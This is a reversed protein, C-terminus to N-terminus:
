GLRWAVQYFDMISQQLVSEEIPDFESHHLRLAARYASVFEGPDVWRKLAMQALVALRQEDSDLRDGLNGADIEYPAHDDICDLGHETVAWQSNAWLIIQRGRGSAPEMAGPKGLWTLPRPSAIFTVGNNSQKWGIMFEGGLTDGPLGAILPGVTRDGEWGLDRALGEVRVLWDEYGDRDLGDADAHLDFLGDPKTWGTWFDIPGIAYCFIM